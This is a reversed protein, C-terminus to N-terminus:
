HVQVQEGALLNMLFSKGQRAAGFISILNVPTNDLPNLIDTTVQENAEMGDETMELWKLAPM